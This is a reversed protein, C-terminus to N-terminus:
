LHSPVVYIPFISFDLFNIMIKGVIKVLFRFNDFKKSQITKEM